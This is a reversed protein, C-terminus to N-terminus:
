KAGEKKEPVHHKLIKELTGLTQEIMKIIDMMLPLYKILKFIQM